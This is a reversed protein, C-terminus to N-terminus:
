CTAFDREREESVEVPAFFGEMEEYMRPGSAFLKVWAPRDAIDRVDQPNLNSIAERLQKIMKTGMM